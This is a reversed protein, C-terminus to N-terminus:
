VWPRGGDSGGYGSDYSSGPGCTSCYYPGYSPRQAVRQQYARWADERQQLERAWASSGSQEPAQEQEQEQEQEHSDVPESSSPTDSAVTQLAGGASEPRKEDWATEPEIGATGATETRDAEAAAELDSIQALLAENRARYYQLWAARQEQLGRSAELYADWEESTAGFSPLPVITCPPSDDHESESADAIAPVSSASSEGGTKRRKYDAPSLDTSPSPSRKSLGISHTWTPVIGLAEFSTMIRISPPHSLRSHLVSQYSVPAPSIHSAAALRRRLLRHM